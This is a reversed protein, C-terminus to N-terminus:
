GPNAAAYDKPQEDKRPRGPGRKVPQAKELAVVKAELEKVIRELRVIRHALVKSM